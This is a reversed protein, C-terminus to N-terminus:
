EGCCDLATGTLTLCRLRVISDHNRGRAFKMSKLFSSSEGFQLLKMSNEAAVVQFESRTEQGLRREGRGTLGGSTISEGDGEQKTQMKDGTKTRQQSNRM